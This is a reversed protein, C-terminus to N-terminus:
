VVEGHSSRPPISRTSNRNSPPSSACSSCPSACAAAAHFLTEFMPKLVPKEGFGNPVFLRRREEVFLWELLNTTRTIRRHAVPLHLLAVCAEFDDALHVLDSPGAATGLEGNMLARLAERSREPASIRATPISASAGHAIRSNPAYWGDLSKLHHPLLRRELACDGAIADDECQAHPAEDHRDHPDHPAVILVEDL